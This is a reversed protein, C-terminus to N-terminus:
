DRGLIIKIESIKSKNIAIFNSNQADILLEEKKLIRIAKIIDKRSFDDTKFLNATFYHLRELSSSGVSWMKSLIYYYATDNKDFDNNEESDVTNILCSNGHCNYFSVDQNINKGNEITCDWFVCNLFTVDHFNDIYFKINKFICENFVSNNIEGSVFFDLSKFIVSSIETNNYTLEKVNDTLAGEFKMRSSSDLFVNIPKLKNWLLNRTEMDRAIYSLVAPEVFRENSPIWDDSSKIINEAIYNGFVFENVFGINNDGKNSRDFFAHNSLTTALKDITPKDKLSYMSRVTNLLYGAKEKLLTIIKEKSASTYNKECMDSAVIRLLEAQQDPNMILNQRDMERNLMSSFYQDVILSPDSCLMSFFDDNSFRLFSLLVPNALKNIDINIRHLEELRDSKIWDKIDPKDIRYRNITFQNDYREVWENFMESDFIASRRSTLIVKANKILLESITELMTEANDFNSKADNNSSDHLLEDFGDLVVIIRGEKVEEIVVDSNVSSFSKDVERIFIHSFIRAQRDRSFETFFPIPADKDKYDSVLSNIIEYSTCTKGFGAPAEIISLQPRKNFLNDCIDKIINKESSPSNNKLYPAQIYSYEGAEKPLINLIRDCHNKYEERIKEKWKEVHFFGDFLIKEIDGISEYFSKKASFGLKEFEHAIANMNKEINEKDSINLSVLEVNHFFGSKFTFVLFDNDSSKDKYDFGYKQFLFIIKDKDKM